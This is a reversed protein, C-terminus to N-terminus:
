RGLPRFLFGRRYNMVIRIRTLHAGAVVMAADARPKSWGLRPNNPFGIGDSSLGFRGNDDRDHLLALSYAGAHPVRICMQVPGQPPVPQHVRRFTKGAMILLNDDALFDRDDSPYVELKLSGKRDRLGEVAVIIAPGLETPRCRGEATGLSPSSPLYPSAIIAVTMLLSM